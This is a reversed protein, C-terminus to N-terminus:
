RSAGKSDSRAAGVATPTLGRTSAVTTEALSSFRERFKSVMSKVDKKATAEAAKGQKREKVYTTKKKILDIAEDIAHSDYKKDPHAERELVVKMIANFAINTASLDEADKNVQVDDRAEKCFKRAEQMLSFIKKAGGMAKVIKPIDSLELKSVAKEIGKHQKALEPDKTLQEEKAKVYDILPRTQSSLFSTLKATVTRALMKGAFSSERSLFERANDKSISTKTELAEEHTHKLILNAGKLLSDTLSPADKPLKGALEDQMRTCVSDVLKPVVVQELRVLGKKFDDQSVSQMNKGKTLMEKVEPTDIGIVEILKSEELFTCVAKAQTAYKATVTAFNVKFEEQIDKRKEIFNEPGDKIKEYTALPEKVLDAILLKSSALCTKSLEPASQMNLTEVVVTPNKELFEQPNAIFAYMTDPDKSVMEEFAPSSKVMLSALEATQKNAGVRRLSRDNYKEQFAKTTTCGAKDIEAEFVEAIEPLVERKMEASVFMSPLVVATQLILASSEFFAEKLDQQEQNLDPM